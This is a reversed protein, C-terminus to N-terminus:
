RYFWTVHMAYKPAQYTVGKLKGIADEGGLATLANNLLTAASPGNDRVPTSVVLSCLCFLASTQAKM